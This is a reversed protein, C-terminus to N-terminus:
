SGDTAEMPQTRDILDDIMSLALAVKQLLEDKSTRKKNKVQLVTYLQVLVTKMEAQEDQCATLKHYMAKSALIVTALQDDGNNLAVARLDNLDDIMHPYDTM